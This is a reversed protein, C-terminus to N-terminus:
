SLEKPLIYFSNFVKAQITDVSSFPLFRYPELHNSKRELKFGTVLCLFTDSYTGLSFYLNRDLSIEYSYIRTEEYLYVCFTYALTIYLISIESTQTPMTTKIM